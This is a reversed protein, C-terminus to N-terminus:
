RGHSEFSRSRWKRWVPSAVAASAADFKDLAGTKTDMGFYLPFQFVHDLTWSVM